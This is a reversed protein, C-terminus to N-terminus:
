KYLIKDVAKSRHKLSCTKPPCVGTPFSLTTEPLIRPCFSVLPPHSAPSSLLPTPPTRFSYSAPSIPSLQALRYFKAASFPSFPTLWSFLHPLRPICPVLTPLNLGWWCAFFTTDSLRASTSKAIPSTFKSSLKGSLCTFNKSLNLNFSFHSILEAWWFM